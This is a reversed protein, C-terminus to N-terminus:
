LAGEGKKMDMGRNFGLRYTAYLNLGNAYIGIASRRQEGAVAHKKGLEWLKLALERIATPCSSDHTNVQGCLECIV